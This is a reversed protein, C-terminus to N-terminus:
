TCSNKLLRRNSEHTKWLYEQFSRYRHIGPFWTAYELVEWEDGFRIVPNLFVCMGDDWESIKLSESVYRTRSFVPDQDDEYYFYQEDSVEVPENNFLDIKWKEELNKAWDIKEVPFLNDLFPCIFRFGNTQLLFEIYTPPLQVGLSKQKKNISSITAPAFTLSRNQVSKNDNGSAQFYMEVAEADNLAFFDETLLKIIDKDDM